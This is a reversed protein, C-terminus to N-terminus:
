EERFAKNLQDSLPKALYSLVTREQTQIFAEVPMGPIIELGNLRSIEEDSVYIIVKYFSRKTAEDYVIDPSIGSVQGILQPTTRQNFAPLMVKAGQGIYVQDIAGPEVKTEFVVGENIPIIQVLTAGPPVVGGITSIQLEHIVGKVPSKIEIREIQKKTSILQQQMEDIKINVDSLESVAQEISQRDLLLMELKTDKISNNIRALESNHEGLQGILDAKNRRASLVQSERILKKKNLKEMSSIEQEIFELQENKAKILEGTGVIQNQFQLVKEKLQELKGNKVSVRSEFIALQAKRVESFDMNELVKPLKSFTINKAAIQEAELRDRLALTNNLRNRYIELNALLLTGDLRLLIQGEDVVVGDRVLIKEVIGGDLHQVSKPKGKVVVNGSAIVAGNILTYNAWVILVCLFLSLFAIILVASFSFQTKPKQIDNDLM